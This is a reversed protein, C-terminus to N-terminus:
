GSPGNQLPCQSWAPTFVRALLRQKALQHWSKLRAVDDQGVAIVAVVEGGRQQHLPADIQDRPLVLAPNGVEPSASAQPSPIVQHVPYTGL